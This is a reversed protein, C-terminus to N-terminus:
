LNERIEALSISEFSHALLGRFAPQLRSQVLTLSDGCEPCVLRYRQHDAPTGIIRGGRASIAEAVRENAEIDNLRPHIEIDGDLVYHATTDHEPYVYLLSGDEVSYVAHFTEV